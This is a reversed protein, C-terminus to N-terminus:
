GEHSILKHFVKGNVGWIKVTKDLSGTAILRKNNYESMSVSFVANMHGSLTTM